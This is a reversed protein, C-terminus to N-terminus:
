LSCSHRWYFSSIKEKLENTNLVLETGIFDGNGNAISNIGKTSGGDNYIVQNKTELYYEKAWDKYIPLTFTAGQSIIKDAANISAIFSMFVIILSIKKLM